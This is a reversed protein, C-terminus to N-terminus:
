QLNLIPTSPWSALGVAETRFRQIPIVVVLGRGETFSSGCSAEFFHLAWAWKGQNPPGLSTGRLSFAMIFWRITAFTQHLHFAM